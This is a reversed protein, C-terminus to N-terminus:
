LSELFSTIISAARIPQESYTMHGADVYDSVCDPIASTIFAVQEQNLVSGFMEREADGYILLTPCSIKALMTEADFGEWHSKDFFTDVTGQDLQSLLLAWERGWTDKAQVIERLEAASKGL